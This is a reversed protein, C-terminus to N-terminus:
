GADESLAKLLRLSLQGVSRATNSLVVVATDAGQCCGRLQSRQQDRRQALARSWCGWAPPRAALRARGGGTQGVPAPSAPHTPGPLGAPYPPDLNALSACCPIGGHDRVPRLDSRQRRKGPKHVGLSTRRGASRSPDPM